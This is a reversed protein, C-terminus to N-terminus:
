ATILWRAGARFLRARQGVFGVGAGVAPGADLVLDPASVGWRGYHHTPWDWPDSGVWVLGYRRYPWWGGDTIPDGASSVTRTGSRAM